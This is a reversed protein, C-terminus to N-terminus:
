EKDYLEINHYECRKGLIQLYDLMAKLQAYQLDKLERPLKYFLMGRMFDQLKNVKDALDLTENRLRDMWEKSPDDNNSPEEILALYEKRTMWKNDQGEGFRVMVFDHVIELIETEYGEPLLSNNNIVVVKDGVKFNM